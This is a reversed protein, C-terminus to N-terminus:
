ASPKINQNVHFLNEPDYKQKIAVLRDYNDGYTARIRDSGEEMLFNVYGGGASYPHLASWYNQVWERNKPTDAPDPFVAAIVHVFRADRYNFATENRGVRHAAGDIPYIHVATNFTPVGAGYRVNERIIEESLEKFFDARWYHQLGYPVLGDFASQLAPFPMPGVHAFLPPGFERLPRVVEEAKEMPGAYCCVVGCVTKNHLHEPFLPVPPVILFAFFASMDEPAQAIYNNYLRMAEASQELSYFIPGGYITDVEHLRFEFSTVIGFNGGGGRLAWFLDANEEASAKMFRGDATVVDASILNDCSLGCKRTLNGMGGGLTLGAIGTTSIVGGPAALGFIHTAHDLDGWTCGGEARAIRAAPDVRIGKMPSLDIVLGDDCTAFGAVNHSGGRIAVTLRNARAFNVAAIVDAVDACRVIYAPHKDIMANYVRRAKDYEEDGPRILAGRLRSILEDTTRIREGTIAQM